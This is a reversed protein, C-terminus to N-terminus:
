EPWQRCTGRTGPTGTDAPIRSPVVVPQRHPIADPTWSERPPGGREPAPGEAAPAAVPQGRPAPDAAEHRCRRHRWSRASLPPPATNLTRHGPNDPPSRPQRWGASAWGDLSARRGNLTCPQRFGSHWSVSGAAGLRDHARDPAPKTGDRHRYRPQHRQTSGPLRPPPRPRTGPAPNDAASSMGAPPPSRGPLRTSSATPDQRDHAIAPRRVAANGDTLLAARSANRIIMLLRACHERTPGSERPRISRLCNGLAV